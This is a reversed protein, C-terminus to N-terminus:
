TKFHLKKILHGVKQFLKINGHSIEGFDDAICEKWLVADHIACQLFDIDLVKFWENRPIKQVIKIEIEYPLLPM